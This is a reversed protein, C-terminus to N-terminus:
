KNKFEIPELTSGVKLGKTQIALMKLMLMKDEASALVQHVSNDEFELLIVIKSIDEIGIEKQPM